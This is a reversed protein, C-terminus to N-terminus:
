RQIFSAQRSEIAATVRTLAESAELFAPRLRLAEKFEAAAEDLHHLQALERGLGYHAEPLSPDAEIAQGYVTAAERAKGQKSLAIGDDVLRVAKAHGSECAVLSCVILIVLAIVKHSTRLRKM